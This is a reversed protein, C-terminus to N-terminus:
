MQKTIKRYKIVATLAALGLLGFVFGKERTINMAGLPKGTLGRLGDVRAGDPDVLKDGAKGTDYMGQGTPLGVLSAGAEGSDYIGIGNHAYPNELNEEPVPFPYAGDHTWSGESDPGLFGNLM